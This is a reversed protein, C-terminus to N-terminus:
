ASSVNTSLHLFFRLAGTIIINNFSAYVCKILWDVIIEGKIKLSNEFWWKKLNKKRHPQQQESARSCLVSSKETGRGGAKPAQWCAEATISLRPKKGDAAFLSSSPSFERQSVTHKSQTWLAAKCSLRSTGFAISVGVEEEPHICRWNLYIGGHVLGSTVGCACAHITSLWRCKLWYMYLIARSM